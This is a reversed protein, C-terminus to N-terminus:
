LLDALSGDRPRVPKRPRSGSAFGSPRGALVIEGTKFDLLNEGECVRRAAAERWQCHMCRDGKSANHHHGAKFIQEDVIKYEAPRLYHPMPRWAEWEALDKRYTRQREQFRRDADRMSGRVYQRAMFGAIGM